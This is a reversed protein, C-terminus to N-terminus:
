MVAMSVASHEVTMGVSSDALLEVWWVVWNLATEAAWCVVLQLVKTVVWWEVWTDVM